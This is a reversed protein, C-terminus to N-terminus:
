MEAERGFAAHDIFLPDQDARRDNVALRLNCVPEGDPLERLEPDRPLQGVLVVQNVNPAAPM